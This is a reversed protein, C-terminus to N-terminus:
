APLRALLAEIAAELPALPVALTGQADATRTAALLTDLRTRARAYRRTQRAGSSASARDLVHALKTTRRQLRRATRRVRGAPVSAPDPLTSELGALCAAVTACSGAALTTTTTTGPPTTAELAVEFTAVYGGAGDDSPALLLQSGGSRYIGDGDNRLTRPGRAAYPARTHVADTLDDDFYLQSTFELGAAADPDTRMKFHIHVTRGPYWGPYITVFRAIGSADTVQYGRLFKRGTTDFGPDQVDSYVGAADCHWVDVLVGALPLCTSGALRSVAFALGLRVGERVSGDSPDSRLDSRELREDVFYPGETQEPRVICSPVTGAAAAASGASVTAARSVPARRRAPRRPLAGAAYAALAAAGASTGILALVERRDLVRGITTHDDRDRRM